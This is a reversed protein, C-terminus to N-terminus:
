DADQTEKKTAVFRMARDFNEQEQEKTLPKFGHRDAIERVGEKKPADPLPQWHTVTASSQWKGNGAYLRTAPYPNEIRSVLYPGNSEPPRDKVSIWKGALQAELEAIRVNAKCLDKTLQIGTQVLIYNPDDSAL